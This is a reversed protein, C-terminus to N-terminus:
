RISVSEVDVEGDVSGDHRPKSVRKSRVGNTCVFVSFSFPVEILARLPWLVLAMSTKRQEEPHQM